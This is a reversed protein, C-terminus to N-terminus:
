VARIDYAKWMCNLMERARPLPEARRIVAAEALRETDGHRGVWRCPSLGAWSRVSNPRPGTASDATGWLGQLLFALARFLGHVPGSFSACAAPVTTTNRCCAAMQALDTCM